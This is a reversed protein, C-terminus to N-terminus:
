DIGHPCRVLTPAGLPIALELDCNPALTSKQLQNIEREWTM